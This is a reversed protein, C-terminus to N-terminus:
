GCLEATRTMCCKGGTRGGGNKGSICFRGCELLVRTDELNETFEAGYDICCLLVIWDGGVTGFGMKVGDISMLKCDGVLRPYPPFLQPHPRVPYLAPGGFTVGALHLGWIKGTTLFNREKGLAAHTQCIEVARKFRKPHPTGWIPHSILSIYIEISRWHNLLNAFFFNTLHVPPYNLFQMPRTDETGSTSTAPSSQATPLIASLGLPFEPTVPRDETTALVQGEKELRDAEQVVRRQLWACHEELLLEVFQEIQSGYLPAQTSERLASANASIHCARHM